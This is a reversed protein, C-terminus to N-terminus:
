LAFLGVNEAIAITLAGTMEGFRHLFPVSLAVAILILNMFIVSKWTQFDLLVQQLTYILTSAAILDCTVNLIMLRHRVSQSYPGTGFEALRRLRLRWSELRRERLHDRARVVAMANNEM